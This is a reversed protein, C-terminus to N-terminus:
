DPPRDPSIGPGVTVTRISSPHREHRAVEAFRVSGDGVRVQTAGTFERLASAPGGSRVGDHPADEHAIALDHPLAPVLAGPPRM